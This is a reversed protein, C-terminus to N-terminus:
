QPLCLHAESIIVLIPILTVLIPLMLLLILSCVQMQIRQALQHDSPSLLQQQTRTKNRTPYQTPLTPYPSCCRSNWRPKAPNRKRFNPCPGALQSLYKSAQDTKPLTAKWPKSTHKKQSNLHLISHIQNNFKAEHASNAKYTALTAAYAVSRM